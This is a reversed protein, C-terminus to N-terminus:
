AAVERFRIGCASCFKMKPETTANCSGCQFGDSEKKIESTGSPFLGAYAKQFCLPADRKLMEAQALRLQSEQHAHLTDLIELAKSEATSKLHTYLAAPVKQTAYDRDLEKIEKLVREDAAPHLRHSGHDVQMGGYEFSGSNGGVRSEKEVLVVDVGQKALELAAALGAPGAGLVVVESM